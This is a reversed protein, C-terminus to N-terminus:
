PRAKELERQAIKLDEKAKKVNDTYQAKLRPALDTGLMRESQEIYKELTRVRKEKARIVTANAAEEQRVREVVQRARATKELEKAAEEDYTWLGVPEAVGNTRVVVTYVPKGTNIIAQTTAADAVLEIDKAEVKTGMLESVGDVLSTQLWDGAGPYYKEPPHMMIKGSNAASPGFTRGIVADAQQKALERDGHQIYFNQYANEYTQVMQQEALGGGVVGGGLRVLSRLGDGAKAATKRGEAKLAAPVGNPDAMAEREKLIAKYAEGPPVGAEMKFQLSLGEAIEGDSFAAEAANPAIAYLDAMAKIAGLQQQETGSARMGRLVSVSTQPIIGADRAMTQTLEMAKPFDEKFLDIGGAQRFYEDAGKKMDANGPDIPIGSSLYDLFSNMAKQGASASDGMRAAQSWQSPTIMGKEYMMDADARTMTGDNIGVQLAAFNRDRWESVRAKQEAEKRAAQHASQGLLAAYQGDDIEKAAYSQQLDDLSVTEQQIGLSLNEYRKQSLQAETQKFLAPVAQADIELYDGRHAEFYAKAGALDDRELMGSIVANHAKALAGAVQQDLADGDYGADMFKDRLADKARNLNISGPDAPNAAIADFSSLVTADRVQDAYVQGQQVEYDEASRLFDGELDAAKLAFADKLVPATLGNAIGSFAKALEDRYHATLPRGNIGKVAEAGQYQSMENKLRNAENLAQNYADNFRVKNIKDQEIAAIQGVVDGAQGVAQGFEQLQRGPIAAQDPSPAGSVRNVPRVSPLVQGGQYQPVRAM